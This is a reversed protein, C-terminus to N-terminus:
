NDYPSKYYANGYSQSHIPSRIMDHHKKTVEEYFAEQEEETATTGKRISYIVAGIIVIFSLGFTLGFMIFDENM